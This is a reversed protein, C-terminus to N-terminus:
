SNKIAQGSIFIDGIDVIQFPVIIKDVDSTVVIKEQTNDLFKAPGNLKITTTAIVRDGLENFCEVSMNTIIPTNVYNYVSQNPLIILKQISTSDLISTKIINNHYAMLSTTQTKYWVNGCSDPAIFVFNDEVTTNYEFKETNFNVTYFIISNDNCFYIKGKSYIVYRNKVNITDMIQVTNTVENVKLLYHKYKISDTINANFHNQFVLLYTQDNYKIKQLSYVQDYHDDNVHTADVRLGNVVVQKIIFYDTGNTTLYDEMNPYISKYKIMVNYNDSVVVTYIKDYINKIKTPNSNVSLGGYGYVSRLSHGIFPKINMDQIWAKLQKTDFCVIYHDAYSTYPTSTSLQTSYLMYLVQSKQDYNLFDIFLRSNIQNINTQIENLINYNSFGKTNKNYILLTNQNEVVFYIFNENSYMYKVVNEGCNNFTLVIHKIYDYIFLRDNLQFYCINKNINDIQYGPELVNDEIEYVYNKVRGDSVIYSIKWFGNLGAGLNTSVWRNATITNPRLELPLTYGSVPELNKKDFLHYGIWFHNPLEIIQEIRRAIDDNKNSYLVPM